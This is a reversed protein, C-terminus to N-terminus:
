RPAVEGVDDHLDALLADLVADRHTQVFFHDGPFLRASFGARTHLAWGEIDALSIDPDALGGWASIPCDLPVDEIHTHTELATLDARLAPLLLQMLDPHRLVETPIGNYRRQMEALFAADSLHSIHPRSDLRHPARRGSVVLRVPKLGAERRLRRALEFALLAGMSHGYIAWPADLYPRLAPVVGDLVSSLSSLPAERLRGERGPLHVAWVEITGPLARAWPWYVSPGVGAHPLCLLRMRHGPRAQPRILWPTTVTWRDAGRPASSM